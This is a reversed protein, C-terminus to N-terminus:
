RLRHKAAHSEHVAADARRAAFQLDVDARAVVRVILRIRFDTELRHPRRRRRTEPWRWPRPVDDDEGPVAKATADNIGPTASEAPLCVLFAVTPHFASSRSRSRAATNRAACLMPVPAPSPRLRDSGPMVIIAARRGDLISSSAASGRSRGTPMPQMPAPNMMASQWRTAYRSAPKLGTAIAERVRWFAPLCDGLPVSGVPTRCTDRAAPRGCPRPARCRRAARHAARAHNALGHLCLSCMRPMRACFGSPM